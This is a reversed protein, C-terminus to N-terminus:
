EDPKFAATTYTALYEVRAPFGDDVDDVSSHLLELSMWEGSQHTRYTSFGYGAGLPRLVVTTGETTVYEVDSAPHGGFWARVTGGTAQLHIRFRGDPLTAGFRDAQSATVGTMMLARAITGRTLRATHWGGELHGVGMPNSASPAPLPTNPSAPAPSPDSGNRQAGVAVAVVLAAAMAVGGTVTLRRVRRQDKAALVAAYSTSAAAEWTPDEGPKAERLRTEISM